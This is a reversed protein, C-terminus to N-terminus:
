AALSKMPSHGFTRRYAHSFSSSDAFGFRHAAEACAMRRAEIEERALELRVQRHYAAPPAGFCGRFNRLLHFRSTGAVQALEALEVPRDTVSHLYSRAVNLRRLLEYRTAPRATDMGGLLQVTEEILPELQASTRALLDRALHQRQSAPRRLRAHVDAVTRGLASCQAPFLMPRDLGSAPGDWSEPFYLCLGLAEGDSSRGIAVDGGTQQPVLLFQGAAVPYTKGGFRYVESGAAVYKLCLRAAASCGSSGSKLKSIVVRGEAGVAVRTAPALVGSIEDFITQM